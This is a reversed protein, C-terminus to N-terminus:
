GAAKEAVVIAWRVQFFLKGKEDRWVRRGGFRRNGIAAELLARAERAEDATQEARAIWDDVDIAYDIAAVSRVDLGARGILAVMESLSLARAHSPDRLREVRNHYDAEPALESSTM